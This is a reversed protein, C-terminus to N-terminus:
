VAVCMNQVSQGSSTPRSHAYFCLLPSSVSFSRAGPTHIIGDVCTDNLTVCFISRVAVFAPLVGVASFRMTEFMSVNFGWAQESWLCTSSEAPQVVEIVLPDDMPM